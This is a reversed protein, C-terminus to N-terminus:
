QAALLNYVTVGWIETETQTQESLYCRTSHLPVFLPLQRKGGGVLEVWSCIHVVGRALRTDRGPTVSHQPPAVCISNLQQLVCM